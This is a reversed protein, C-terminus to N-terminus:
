IVVLNNKLAYVVLGAMNKTGTKDLLKRRYGEITRVSLTLKEAIEAATFEKCILELVQIERDTLKPNLLTCFKDRNKLNNFVLKSIDDSFYFDKEIVKILAMELEEPDANKLLYGNVGENIMYLIFQEDDELTLIIIKLGPYLEKIKTTVEMGDMGPMRLDLLVVDPKPETKKLLELLEFGNGAEFIENVFDFDSLLAKVGKRFLKHDDTVVVNIKKRDM